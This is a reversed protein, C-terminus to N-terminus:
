CRKLFLVRPGESIHCQSTTKNNFHLSEKLTENGSLRPSSAIENCNVNSFNEEGVEGGGMGGGCGQGM